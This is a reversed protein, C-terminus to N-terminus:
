RKENMAQEPVHLQRTRSAGDSQGIPRIADDEAVGKEVDRVPTHIRSPPARRFMQGSVNTQSGTRSETRTHGHGYPMTADGRTRAVSERGANSARASDQVFSHDTHITPVPRNTIGHNFGSPAIDRKREHRRKFWTLLAGFALLGILLAILM